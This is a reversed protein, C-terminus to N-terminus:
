QGFKKVKKKEWIHMKSNVDNLDEHFMHASGTKIKKIKGYHKDGIQTDTVIINGRKIARGFIKNKMKM